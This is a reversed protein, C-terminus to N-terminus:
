GTCVVDDLDSKTYGTWWKRTAKISRSARDGTRTKIIRDICIREQALVIIVRQPKLANRWWDREVATAASVIFWAQSAKFDSLTALLENRRTLMQILTEESWQNSSIGLETRIIDMDIVVDSDCKHTKIYTSKGGGAPGCVITLPINSPKLNVPFLLENIFQQRDIKSFGRRQVGESKSKADHCDKCRIKLNHEDDTGGQELPTNHDIENSANVYGCDVCTFRGALLTDQRIRMWKRGRTRETSGAKTELMPIRNPNLATLKPKLTQLAMGM